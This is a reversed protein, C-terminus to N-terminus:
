SIYNLSVVHMWSAWREWVHILVVTFKYGAAMVAQGIKDALLWMAIHENKFISGAMVHNIDKDLKVKNQEVKQQIRFLKKLNPAVEAFDMVEEDQVIEEGM